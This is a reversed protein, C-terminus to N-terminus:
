PPLMVVGGRLAARARTRPALRAAAQARGARGAGSAGDGGGGPSTRSWATGSKTRTACTSTEVSPPAVSAVPFTAKSSPRTLRTPVGTDPRITSSRTWGPSRTPFPCGSM